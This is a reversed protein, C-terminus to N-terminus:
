MIGSRDLRFSPILIIALLEAVFHSYAISPCTIEALFKSFLRASKATWVNATKEFKPCVTDTVLM